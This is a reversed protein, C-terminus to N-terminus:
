RQSSYLGVEQVYCTQYNNRGNMPGGSIETRTDLPSWRM